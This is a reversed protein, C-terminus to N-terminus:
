KRIIRPINHSHFPAARLHKIKVKQTAEQQSASRSPDEKTEKQIMRYINRSHFPDAQLHKIM